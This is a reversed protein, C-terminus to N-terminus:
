VPGRPFGIPSYSNHGTSMGEGGGGPAAGIDISANGPGTSSILKLVPLRGMIEATLPTRERMVCIIDFPALRSVLADVDSIHDNFFTIEASGTLPSWDACKAAVNQYDDLIAIKL